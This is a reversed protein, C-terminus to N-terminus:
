LKVEPYMRQWPRLASSFVQEWACSTQSRSYEGFRESLLTPDPHAEQWRAIDGCLRLFDEPPRLLWIQGTWECDPVGGMAGHEDLQYVGRPGDGEIAIWDGPSHLSPLLMGKRLQWAGETHAAPFFNNVRRMVDSVSVSM